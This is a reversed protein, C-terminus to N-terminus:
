DEFSIQALEKKILGIDTLTVRKNKSPRQILQQKKRM